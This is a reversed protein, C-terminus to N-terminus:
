CRRGGLASRGAVNVLFDMARIIGPGNADGNDLGSLAMTASLRRRPISDGMRVRRLRPSEVSRSERDCLVVLPDTSSSVPRTVGAANFPLSLERSLLELSPLECPLRLDFLTLM